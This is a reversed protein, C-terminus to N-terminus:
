AHVARRVVPFGALGAVFQTCTQFEIRSGYRDVLYRFARALDGWNGPYAKTHSQLVVPVVDPEAEECRRMVQDLGLRMEQFSASGLDLCRVDGRNRLLEMAGRLRPGMPSLAALGAPVAAHYFFREPARGRGTLRRALQRSITGLGVRYHSLPVVVIRERRSSVKRIDEYDPYYPLLDEELETYDASFDATRHRIGRGVGMVMRIGAQELDRLLHGSPQLGWSGAKFATVAYDADVQRLTDTLYRIGDRIMERRSEAPHAALNWNSGIRFYGDAYPAGHWQPHLHLQVDHGRERALLVTDDWLDAQMRLNRDRGAHERIRLQQLVEAMFTVRMGLEDALNLLFLAPLYQLHAVNGLGNGQLEWDDEILIVVRKAM